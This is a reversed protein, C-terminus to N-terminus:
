YLSRGAGANYLHAIEDVTLLRRWIGAEDLSGNYENGAVTFDGFLVDGTGVLSLGDAPSIDFTGAVVGDFYVSALGNRDGNFVSHHWANDSYPLAINAYLSASVVYQLTGVLSNVYILTSADFLIGSTTSTKLWFSIAFDTTGISIVGGSRSLSQNSAAVFNAANGVKGASFTVSNNNTLNYSGPGSDSADDFKYYAVVDARLADGIPDASGSPVSLARGRSVAIARSRGRM